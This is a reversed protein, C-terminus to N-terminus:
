RAMFWSAAALKSQKKMTPFGVGQLANRQEPGFIGFSSQFLDLTVWWLSRAGESLCVNWSWFFDAFLFLHM